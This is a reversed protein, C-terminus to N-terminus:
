ARDAEVVLDVGVVAGDVSLSSSGAAPEEEAVTWGVALVEGAIWDGHRRAAEALDGTAHLAVRIRDALELGREKRLDNIARVLERALGERRLDDDIQTDLAVAVTGDQVVALADHTAARIEVDDPGLVVADGDVDLTFSGTAAFARRIEGGDVAALRTRV